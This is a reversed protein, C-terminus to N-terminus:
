FDKKVLFGGAVQADAPSLPDFSSQPMANPM